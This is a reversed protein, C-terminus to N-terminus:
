ERPRPEFCELKHRVANNRDDGDHARHIAVHCLPHLAIVSYIDDPGNDARRDVHHCELYPQGRRNNFPAPENCCECVGQARRLVHATIAAARHYVNREGRDAPRQNGADIARQRLVEDPEADYAEVIEELADQGLAEGRVLNFIVQQVRAGDRVVEIERYGNYFWEGDFRYEGNEKFFLLISRGVQMHDRIQHNNNRWARGRQARQGYYEYSGDPLFHDRYGYKNGHPDSVVIVTDEDNSHSIGQFRDGGFTAKIDVRRRFGLGIHEHWPM